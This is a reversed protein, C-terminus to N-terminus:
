DANKLRWEYYAIWILANRRTQTIDGEEDRYMNWHMDPWGLTVNRRSVSIVDPLELPDYEFTAMTTELAM